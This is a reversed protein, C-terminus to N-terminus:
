GKSSDSSEGSAAEDEDADELEVEVAEENEDVSDDGDEEEVVEVSDDEVVTTTDDDADAAEDSSADSSEESGGEEDAQYESLDVNYPADAPIENIVIDAKEHMEELWDSYDSSTKNSKAMSEVSEQFAEPLQNMNTIKKPATFVETCKIIHIGYQSEVLGSVEGNGLNDLATTYESVFSNLVDWGVDGGNKASGEDTSYEKAADAFDITGYNIQDLVAQAKERAENMAAEDTTDEVGFLIHSSRKAGDYSSAYTNAIKLKDKKTVKVNETFYEQVKKAVLSEEISERYEEENFGAEKLAKSWAEESAYNAKMSDICEDVETSEVTVGLEPAYLKILAQNVYSDIVEERIDAPTSGIQILYNAWDEAEAMDYQSRFTEIYTTVKDEYIPTGNVTAAVPGGNSANSGSCAGLACVCTSIVGLALLAKLVKAVRM